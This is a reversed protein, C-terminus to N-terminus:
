VVKNVDFELIHIGYKESKIRVLGKGNGTSKIWLARAGGILAVCKPGIVEVPGETEINMADNAYSMLNKNQDVARLVIRTVDYTDAENLKNSDALVELNVRESTAKVITKVLEGDKYGEFKFSIRQGGWNSVYTGFLRMGDDMSLKYKLMLRGMILKSSLPLNMGYKSADRLINKIRISDKESINEYKQLLDGIFDDIKVPPHKINPFQSRDPYFIKIFEENKYLKIYDCNTFAYVTGLDGGSHEGIDMSSSLELVPIKDQQSSYVYWALKPIRFMDSVGHYCIRDGSGFDKHTNYDFMCWGIAGSIRSNGLMSDLVRMHRLAHELRRRENDFRKTPYMHGNYETVLYPANTGTVKAPQDLATNTGYHTFDNYTYVDEYLRSDKFNRVGGTQRTNDLEHAIRNTNLYLDDCDASENIRVGWLIIGPHNRDRVIMDYVNKCAHEKWKEEGIHQWGPIEEFVLLGIEDCRDLFHRSQPYHSTRVINVGLEYKLLDADKIQASKPMAYGVYPYSQHRNLGILKIKSGNLYFGDPRFCAERFGFKVEYTDLVQGNKNLEARLTYLVPNEIDWLLVNLISGRINGKITDNTIYLFRSVIESNCDSIQFYVSADPCVKSLTIDIDLTKSSSLVDLTRVFIDKIYTKDRVELWVERYIGGYTLYDIVKGFPPIDDRETSDCVVVLLNKEGYIVNDSIDVEFPTYGCSHESIYKGNIYLKAHSAIGEFKLILSKGALDSALNLIKRYCSVFQYEAEDFNNYDLVRNTHPINVQEFEKDEIDNYLYNENFEGKYQWEFNLNVKQM